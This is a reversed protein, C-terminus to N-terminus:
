PEVLQEPHRLAMLTLQQPDVPLRYSVLGTATSELPGYFAAVTRGAHGLGNGTFTPPVPLGLAELVIVPLDQVGAVAEIRLPAEPLGAILLPVTDSMMRGPVRELRAELKSTIASDHDSYIAVICRDRLGAEALEGFFEEICRDVYRVAQVYDSEIGGGDPLGFRERVHQYPHHNTLLILHAFTPRTAAGLRQAAQHLLSRDSVGWGISESADLSDGFFTEDVGLASHAARRRWFSGDFGHM